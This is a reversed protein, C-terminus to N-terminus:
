EEKQDYINSSKDKAPINSLYKIILYQIEEPTLKMAIGVGVLAGASSGIM